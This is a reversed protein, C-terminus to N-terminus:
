VDRPGDLSQVVAYLHREIARVDTGFRRRLEVVTDSCVGPVSGPGRRAWEVRRHFVRRLREETMEEAVRVTRVVFGFRHLERDLDFRAALVVSQRRRWIRRRGRADLMYVDDLFLPGGPPVDPWGEATWRVLPANPFRAHLALLHTTKGRGPPGVFQVAM